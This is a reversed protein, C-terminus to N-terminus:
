TNSLHDKGIINYGPIELNDDDPSTVSNLYTESLYILGLKQVSIFVSLLSVKQYM